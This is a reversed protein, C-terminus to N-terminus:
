IVDFHHPGLIVSTMSATRQRTGTKLVSNTPMASVQRAMGPAM